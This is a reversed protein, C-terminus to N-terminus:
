EPWRDKLNSEYAKQDDDAQKLADCFNEHEGDDNILLKDCHCCRSFEVSDGFKENLFEMAKNLMDYPGVSVDYILAWEKKESPELQELISM